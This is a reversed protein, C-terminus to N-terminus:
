RGTLQWLNYSRTKVDSQSYRITLKVEVRNNTLVVTPEDISEALGDEVFWDVAKFIENRVANLTTRTIRAQEYLWVTSGNEYPLSENGIWGRQRHTDAMESDNARAEGYISYLIATDYNDEVALQGSEDLSIDYYGASDFKLAVDTM